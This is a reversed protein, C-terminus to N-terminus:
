IALCVMRRLDGLGAFNGRNGLKQLEGFNRNGSGATGQLKGFHASGRDFNALGAARAHSGGAYNTSMNQCKKRVIRGAM